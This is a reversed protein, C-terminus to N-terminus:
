WVMIVGFTTFISLVSMTHTATTDSAEDHDKDVVWLGRVGAMVSLGVFPAFFYRFGLGASFGLILLEDKTETESDGGPSEIKTKQRELGPGFDFSATLFFAFPGKEILHYQVTPSFVLTTFHDTDTIKNGGPGEGVDRTGVRALDFRLGLLLKKMKYGFVFGASVMPIGTTGLGALAVHNAGIQFELFIGSSKITGSAAATAAPASSAPTAAPAPTAVPPATAVPNETPQAVALSSTM